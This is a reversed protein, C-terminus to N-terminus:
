QSQVSVRDMYKRTNEQRTENQKKESREQKEQKAAINEGLEKRYDRTPESGM